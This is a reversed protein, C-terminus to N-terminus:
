SANVANGDRSMGRQQRVYRFGDLLEGFFFALLYITQEDDDPESHEVASGPPLTLFKAVKHKSQQPEGLSTTLFRLFYVCCELRVIQKTRKACLKNRFM